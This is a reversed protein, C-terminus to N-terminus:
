QLICPIANTYGVRTDRKPWINTELVCCYRRKYSNCFTDRLRCDFVPSDILISLISSKRVSLFYDFIISRWLNTFWRIFFFIRRNKQCQNLTLTPIPLRFDVISVSRTFLIIYRTNVNVWMIYWLMSMWIYSYKFCETFVKKECVDVSLYEVALLNHRVNYTVFRHSYSFSNRTPWGFTYVRHWRTFM